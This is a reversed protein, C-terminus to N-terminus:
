SSHKVDSVLLSNLTLQLQFSFNNLNTNRGPKAKPEEQQEVVSWSMLRWHCALVHGTWLELQSRQSLWSGEGLAGVGANEVQLLGRVELM